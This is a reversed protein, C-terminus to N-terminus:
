CMCIEHIHMNEQIHLSCLYTSVIYICSNRGLYIVSKVHIYTNMPMIMVFM